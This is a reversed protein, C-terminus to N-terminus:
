LEFNIIQYIDINCELDYLKKHYKREKSLIKISVALNDSKRIGEVVRSSAGKGLTRGFIYRQQIPTNENDSDDNEKILQKVNEQIPLDNEQDDIKTEEEVKSQENQEQKM